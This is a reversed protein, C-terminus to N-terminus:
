PVARRPSSPECGDPFVRFKRGVILSRGLKRYASAFLSFVWTTAKGIEPHKTSGPTRFCRHLAFM